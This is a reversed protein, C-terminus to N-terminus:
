MPTFVANTRYTNGEHEVIVDIIVTYGKETDSEVKLPIVAQGNKGIDSFYPTSHGKYQCIATVKGGTPGTINLYTISGRPPSTNTLYATIKIELDESNLWASKNIIDNGIGISQKNGSNILDTSILVTCTFLILFSTMFTMLSNNARKRRRFYYVSIIIYILFIVYVLLSLYWPM